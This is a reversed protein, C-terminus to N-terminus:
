LKLFKKRKVRIAKMACLEQCCYCKICKESNIHAKGDKIEITKVPCCRECEGCGICKEEIVQPRPEMWKQVRGGFLTPIQKVIGGAHGDPRLFDSKYPKIDEGSIEVEEINEPTLGRKISESLTGVENAEYGMLYAGIRDLVFPNVGGLLLGVKKLSGGAPGNGEMCIVADLVNIQPATLICLDVLMAAFDSRAPFRAHMEAKMLGPISGFMNKVAASMECLAHTKLRPLNVVLDAQVVPEIIDFNKSKKGDAPMNKYGTNFNLKAGGEEAAREIGSVKYVGKLISANYVGGPSDAVLVEGGRETFFLAAYKLIQPNTTVAMNPTRKALLNPKLLINKGSIEFGLEETQRNLLEYVCEKVINEDYDSCKLAYIKKSNLDLTRKM